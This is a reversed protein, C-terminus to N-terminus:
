IRAKMFFRSYEDLAEASQTVFKVNADRIEVFTKKHDEPIYALGQDSLTVYEKTLLTSLAVFMDVNRRKWSM